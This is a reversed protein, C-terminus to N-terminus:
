ILTFAITKNKEEAAILNQKARGGYINIIMIISQLAIHYDLNLGNRILGLNWVGLINALLYSILM